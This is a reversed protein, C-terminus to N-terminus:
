KMFYQILGILTETLNLKVDWSEQNFFQPRRRNGVM